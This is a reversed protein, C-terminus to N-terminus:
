RAVTPPPRDRSRGYLDLWDLRVCDGAQGPAADLDAIGIADIAGLDLGAVAAGAAVRDIALRRWGTDALGIAHERWDDSPGVAAESARWEGAADAVILRMRAAGTSRTRVVVRAEGRLDLQWRRHRFSVAWPAIATGSWLYWPDDAVDDHHSKKLAASGPGHLALDLEATGVEGATLPRAPASHAWAIRFLLTPTM